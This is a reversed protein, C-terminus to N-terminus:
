EFDMRAANSIAINNIVALAGAAVREATPQSLRHPGVAFPQANVKVTCHACTLLALVNSIQSSSFPVRIAGACKSGTLPLLPVVSAKVASGRITVSVREM